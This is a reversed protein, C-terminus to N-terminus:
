ISYRLHIASRTSITVETYEIDPKATRYRSNNYLTNLGLLPGVQIRDTLRFLMGATLDLAHIFAINNYTQSERETHVLNADFRSDAINLVKHNSAIGSSEVNENFTIQNLVSIRVPIEIHKFTNNLEVGLRLGFGKHDFQNWAYSLQTDPLQRARTASHATFGWSTEYRTLQYGSRFASAGLIFHVQDKKSKLHVGIEYPNSNGYTSIPTNVYIHQISTQAQSTQFAILAAVTILLRNNM